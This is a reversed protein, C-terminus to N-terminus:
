GPPPLKALADKFDDRGRLPNLDQELELVSRDRFGQEIAQRIQAVASGLLVQAREAKEPPLTSAAQAYTRALYIRLEPDVRPGAALRDAIVLAEEARGVHPLTLMLEIRRLDNKLDVGYLAEALRVAEDYERRALEPKKEADALKALRITAAFYERRQYANRDDAKSLTAFIDRSEVLHRRAAELDGISFDHIGRQAHYNGFGGRTHQSNPDIKAAQEYLELALRFDDEAAPRKGLRGSCDAMGLASLATSLILTLRPTPPPLLGILAPNAELTALIESRLNFARRFEERAKSIDGLHHYATGLHTLIDALTSRNSLHNLTPNEDTPRALIDEYLKVAEQLDAIVANM